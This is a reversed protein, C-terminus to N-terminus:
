GMTFRSPQLRERIGETERPCLDLDSPLDPIGDRRQERGAHRINGIQKEGPV